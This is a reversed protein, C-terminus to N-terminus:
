LTLFQHPSEISNLYDMVTVCWDIRNEDAIKHEDITTKSPFFKNDYSMSRVKDPTLEQNAKYLCAQQEYNMVKVQELTMYGYAILDYGLMLNQAEQYSMSLAEQLTLAPKNGKLRNSLYIGVFNIKSYRKTEFNDCLCELLYYLPVGTKNALQEIEPTFEIIIRFNLAPTQTDPAVNTNQTSSTSKSFGSQFFSLVKQISETPNARKAIPENKKIAQMAKQCWADNFSYDECSIISRRQGETLAKAEDITLFKREILPRAISLNIYEQHSTNLVENLSMGPGTNTLHNKLFEKLSDIRSFKGDDDYFCQAIYGLGLFTEEALSKLFFYDNMKIKVIPANDLDKQKAKAHQHDHAHDDNHNNIFGQSQNYLVRKQPDSLVAYAENIEIMKAEALTKEEQTVDPHYKRALTYYATKIEGQSANMAIGLIDYLTIPKMTQGLNEYISLLLENYGSSM